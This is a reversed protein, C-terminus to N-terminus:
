ISVKKNIIKNITSHSQICRFHTRAHYGGRFLRLPLFALYLIWLFPKGYVTSIAIMAVGEALSSHQLELGYAYIRIAKAEIVSHESMKQVM